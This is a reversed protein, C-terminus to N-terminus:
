KHLSYKNGEKAKTIKLNNTIAIKSLIKGISDTKEFSGIFYINAIEKKNYTIEVNYMSGLQDFVESLPQNNFMYWSGKNKPLSPDDPTTKSVAVDERQKNV